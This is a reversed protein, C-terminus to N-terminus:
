AVSDLKALAKRAPIHLYMWEHKSLTALAARHKLLMKAPFDAVTNAAAWPADGMDEGELSIEILADLLKEDDHHQRFYEDILACTETSTTYILLERLNDMDAHGKSMAIRADALANNEYNTAM